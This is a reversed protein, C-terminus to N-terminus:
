PSYSGLLLKTLPTSAGFLLAVGLAAMASLNTWAKM